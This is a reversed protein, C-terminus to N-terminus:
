AEGVRRVGIRDFWRCSPVRHLLTEDATVWVPARCAPCETRLLAKLDVRIRKL